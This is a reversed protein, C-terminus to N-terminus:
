EAKFIQDNSLEVREDCGMRAFYRGTRRGNNRVYVTVQWLRTPEYGLDNALKLDDYHFNKAIKAVYSLVGQKVTLERM